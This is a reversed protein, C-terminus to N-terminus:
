ACNQEVVEGGEELAEDDEWGVGGFRQREPDEVGVGKLEAVDGGVDAEFGGFFATAFGGEEGDKAFEDVAGDGGGVDAGGGEEADGLFGLGGVEIFFGVGEELGVLFEAADEVAAVCFFAGVDDAYDVM